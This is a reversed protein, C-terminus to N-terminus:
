SVNADSARAIASSALAARAVAQWARGAECSARSKGSRPMSLRSRSSLSPRKSPLREGRTTSSCSSTATSTSCFARSITRLTRSPAHSCTLTLVTRFRAPRQRGAEDLARAATAYACCGPCWCLRAFARVGVCSQAGVRGCVRVEPFHASLSSPNALPVPVHNEMRSHFTEEPHLFVVEDYKESVVPKKTSQAAGQQFGDEYLKLAHTLEQPWACSPLRTMSRM